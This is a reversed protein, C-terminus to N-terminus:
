AYLTRKIKQTPTKEFPETQRIVRALRSFHSVRENVQRRIDELLADIRTRIETETLRRAEFMRDLKEQDLCVRAVIQGERQIVLSELVPERENIVAEIEEPYINEGSPGLIMNKLVVIRITL